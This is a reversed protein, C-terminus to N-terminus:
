WTNRRWGDPAQQSFSCTQSSVEWPPVRLAPQSSQRGGSEDPDPWQSAPSPEGLPSFYCDSGEGEWGEEGNPTFIEVIDGAIM